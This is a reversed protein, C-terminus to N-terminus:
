GVLRSEADGRVPQVPRDGVALLERGQAVGAVSGGRRSGHPRGSRAWMTWRPTCVSWRVTKAYTSLEAKTSSCPRSAVNTTPRWDRLLAIDRGRLRLATDRRASSRPAPTAPAAETPM